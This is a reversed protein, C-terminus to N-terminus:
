WPSPTQNCGSSWFVAALGLCCMHCKEALDLLWLNSSFSHHHHFGHHHNHKASAKFFHIVNSCFSFCCGWDPSKSGSQEGSEASQLNCIQAQNPGCVNVGEVTSDVHGKFVHCCTQVQGILNQALDWLSLLNKLDCVLEVPGFSSWFLKLILPRLPKKQEFHTEIRSSDHPVQQSGLTCNENVPCNENVVDGVSSCATKCHLVVGPATGYSKPVAGLQLLVSCFRLQYPVTPETAYLKWITTRCFPVPLRGTTLSHRM